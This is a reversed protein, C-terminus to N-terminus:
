SSTRRRTGTSAPLSGAGHGLTRYAGFFWLKDQKIPGGVSVSEDFIKVTKNGTQLGRARLEDSLNDSEMHNNSFAGNLMTRFTNSGEKPVINMVPGDANVEASIGSTQLVMEEVTAANIQYSSNGSSNEVGMGDFSVKTGASAM